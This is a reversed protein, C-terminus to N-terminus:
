NKFEQQKEVITTYPLNRLKYSKTRPVIKFKQWEEEPNGFPREAKAFKSFYELMRKTIMFQYQYSGKSVHEWNGIEQMPDIEVGVLSCVAYFLANL